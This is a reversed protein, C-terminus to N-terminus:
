PVRWPEPRVVKLLDRVEQSKMRAPEGLVIPDAWAYNVTFGLDELAGITVRSLPNVGRDIWGTMLETNFVSERWHSGATGQGGEVEVPVSSGTGGLARYERSANPGTYRLDSPNSRNVFGHNSWLTGIGLAHGLEHIAVTTLGEGANALDDTDFILVGAYARKGDRSIVCPGAYALTDGEGDIAKNGAYVILGDAPLVMSASNECRGPPVTLGVELISRNATIIREWVWAARQISNRTADTTGPAFVLRIQYPSPKAPAGPLPSLVNLTMSRSSTTGGGSAAVTITHAGTILAETQLTAEFPLASGHTVEHGDLTVTVNTADSGDAQVTVPIGARVTADSMFVGTLSVPPAPPIVTLNFTASALVKGTAEVYQVKVPQPGEAVNAGKQLTLQLPDSANSGGRFEVGAPLGTVTLHRGTQYSPAQPEGKSNLGRVTLSVDPYVDSLTVPDAQLALGADVDPPTPVPTPSPSPVPAPAPTPTPTPVPAPLPTPDPAPAPAPAPTPTPMPSATPSPVGSCASLTLLSFILISCKLTKM